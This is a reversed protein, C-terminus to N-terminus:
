RTSREASPCCSTPTPSCLSALPAIMPSAQLLDAAAEEARRERVTSELESPSSLCAPLPTSATAPPWSRM